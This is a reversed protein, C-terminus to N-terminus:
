GSWLCYNADRLGLKGTWGVGEREGEGEAVAIRNELDMLKKETFLENTYTLNWIDTIDCAPSKIEVSVFDLEGFGGEELSRSKSMESNRCCSSNQGAFACLRPM